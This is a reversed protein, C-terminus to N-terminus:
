RGQECLRTRLLDLEDATLLSEDPPQDLLLGGRVLSVIEDTVPGIAHGEAILMDAAERDTYFQDRV